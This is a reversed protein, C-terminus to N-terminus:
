DDVLESSSYFKSFTMNLLIEFINRVKWLRDSNEFTIDPENKNYKFHLGNCAHCRQSTKSVERTRLHAIVQPWQTKVEVTGFWNLFETQPCSGANRLLV